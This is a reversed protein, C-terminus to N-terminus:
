QTEEWATMGQRFLECISDATEMGLKRMQEVDAGGAAAKVPMERELKQYLLTKQLSGLRLLMQDVAAREVVTREEKAIKLELLRNEKTLKEVLLQERSKSARNGVIGLDNVEIFDRWAKIDQPGTPAGPLKRWETITRRSFGLIEALRPWTEATEENKAQTM